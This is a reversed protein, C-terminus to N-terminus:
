ENLEEWTKGTVKKLLKKALSKLPIDIDREEGDKVIVYLLKLLKRRDDHLKKIKRITEFYDDDVFINIGMIKEIKYCDKNEKIEPTKEFGPIKDIDIM